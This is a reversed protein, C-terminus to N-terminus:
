RGRPDGMERAGGARVAEARFLCRFQERSLLAGGQRVM